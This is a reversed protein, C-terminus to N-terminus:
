DAYTRALREAYWAAKRADKAPDGKAGLRWLYKIINGRCYARFGETGLASEIGEIAEVKGMTYHSPHNVDDASTEIYTSVTELIGTSM